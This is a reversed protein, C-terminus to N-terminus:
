RACRFGTVASAHSRSVASSTSGDARRWAGGGSDNRYEHWPQSPEEQWTAPEAGLDALGGHGKCYAQAAAWSVNVTGRDTAGPPPEAGTWGKLYGAQAEGAAIASAQQWEPHEGLWIAFAANNVARAAATKAPKLLALEADSPKPTPQTSQSDPRLPAVVMEIVLPGEAWPVEIPQTLDADLTVTYRGPQLGSFVRGGPVRQSDIPGGSGGGATPVIQATASGGKLTVDRRPPSSLEVVENQVGTGTRVLVPRTVQTCWSAIPPGAAGGPAAAGGPDAAAGAGCDMGVTAVLTHAGLATPGAAWKGANNLLIRSDLLLTLPVDRPVGSVVFTLARTTAAVPPAPASQTVAYMAAAAAAAALFLGGSLAAAAIKPSRGAPRNSAPPAPEPSAPVAPRSQAPGFDAYTPEALRKPGSIPPPPPPPGYQAQHTPSQPAAPRGAATDPVITGSRAGGQLPARAALDDFTFDPDVRTLNLADIRECLVAATPVRQAPDPHTLDHVLHRLDLPVLPGPDLPISTQKQAVTLLFRQSPSGEPPMPFAVQGTLCEWICLGLAYLDWRAPDLDGPRAWEPPVYSASGMAQGQESFTAGDMETAIGFDVLKSRGDTQCVINAPKVDRHRINRAHLYALADAIERLLTVSETVPIPGAELRAELSMGDVFEMELYPPHLDIRVNRVKVISPHDLSFLIEAERVFRQQMKPIRNLSSDLVKIAALIRRASRNHCRFVSGMGGQGLAKEVVWIDIEDGPQFM